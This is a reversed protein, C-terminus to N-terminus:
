CMSTKEVVQFHQNPNNYAHNDRLKNHLESHKEEEMPMLHKPNVCARNFCTHHATVYTSSDSRPLHWNLTPHNTMTVLRHIGTTPFVNLNYTQPPLELKNLLPQNIIAYGDKDLYNSPIELCKSISETLWITGRSNHTELLIPKLYNVFSYSIDFDYKNNYVKNWYFSYYDINSLNHEALLRKCPASVHGASGVMIELEKDSIATNGANKDIDLGNEVPQVKLCYDLKWAPIGWTHVCRYVSEANWYCRHVRKSNITKTRDKSVCKLNRLTTGILQVDFLGDSAEAITEAKFDEMGNSNLWHKIFCVCMYARATNTTPLLRFFLEAISMM